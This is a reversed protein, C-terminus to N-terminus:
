VVVVVWGAVVVVVAGPVVAVVVTAGTDVVVVVTTPTTPAVVEVVAPVATTLAPSAVFPGLVPTATTDGAAVPVLPPEDENGNVPEAVPGIARVPRVARAAPAPIQAVCRRLDCM